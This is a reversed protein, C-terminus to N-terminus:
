EPRMARQGNKIPHPFVSSDWVNVKAGDLPLLGFSDMKEICHPRQNHSNGSSPAVILTRSEVNKKSEIQLNSPSQHEAM